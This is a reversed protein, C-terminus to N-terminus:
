STSRRHAVQRYRVWILRNELDRGDALHVLHVGPHRSLWEARKQELRDEDPATFLAERADPKGIPQVVQRANHVEYRHREFDRDRVPKGCGPCAPAQVQDNAVNCKEEQLDRAQGAALMAQDTSKVHIDVM